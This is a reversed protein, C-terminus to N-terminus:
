FRLCDGPAGYCRALYFAGCAAHAALVVSCFVSRPSGAQRGVIRFSEVFVLYSASVLGWYFNGSNFRAAPQEALLAYEAIAVALVCWSFLVRRDAFVERPFCALVCVPFALGLLPSVPIYYSAVGWVAFPDLVVRAESSFSFFYQGILVAIPFAFAAVLHAFGSTVSLQRHFIRSCIQIALLPGFFPLFAIVYNPKALTCLSTWVGISLAAGSGPSEWYRMASLFVLVAFPGSFATTPNHWVNPHINGLYIAPFKWWNPLSMALALCFSGLMAEVPSADRSVERYTLWSRLAFALALVVPACRCAGSYEEAGTFWMAVQVSYHYLPHPVTAKTLGLAAELHWRQDGPQFVPDLELFRRNIFFAVLFTLLVIAFECVRFRLRDVIATGALQM